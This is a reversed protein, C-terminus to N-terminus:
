RRLRLLVTVVLSLSFYALLWAGGGRLMVWFPTRYGALALASDSPAAAEGTWGAVAAAKGAVAEGTWGAVAAANGTAVAAAEGTAGANSFLSLRAVTRGRDEVLATYRGSAPKGLDAYFRGPGVSACPREGVVTGRTDALVVRPEVLSDAHISLSLGDATETLVAAPPQESFLGGLLAQLITLTEQRRLFAEGYHGYLDSAYVLVSRAGVRGSVLLPDGAASSFFAVTDPKAGLRAMGDIAGAKQGALNVVEVREEAFVTRAISKRDEIILSPIESTDRVRYFSGGSGAALRTLLARDYEAGVAMASIGIGSSFARAALADFDAPASIGDSVVVIRKEPKDVAELASLCELLAPYMRTGGGARLPALSRQADFDSLPAPPYLWRSEDDFLLLGAVDRPKLNAVLELGVAKALSLKDGYMSGSVDLAVALALDPLRSLSRPSLDVPLIRELAPADGPRGAEPSDIVALLSGAGREVYEALAVATRGDLEPLSLGDLVVLEYDYLGAGILEGYPLKKVPFLTEIVSRADPRDSAMLIRPRDEEPPVIFISSSRLSGPAGAELMLLSKGGYQGPERDGPGVLPLRLRRDAPLGASEIVVRGDLTVRVPGSAQEDLLLTLLSASGRGGLDLSYAALPGPKRAPVSFAVPMGTRAYHGRAAEIDARTPKEPMVLKIAGRHNGSGELASVLTASSCAVSRQPLLIGPLPLPLKLAYALLCVIPLALELIRLARGVTRRTRSTEPGSHGEVVKDSDGKHIAM